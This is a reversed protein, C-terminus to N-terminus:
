KSCTTDCKDTICEADAACSQGANKESLHPLLPVDSSPIVVYTSHWM